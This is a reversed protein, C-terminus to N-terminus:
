PKKKKSKKLIYEGLKYEGYLGALVPVAAGVLFSVPLVDGGEGGRQRYGSGIGRYAEGMVKDFLEPALDEAAMKFNIGGKALRYGEENPYKSYCEIAKKDATRIARKRAMGQPMKFIRDFELDHVKSCADINNYPPFNRVEPLDIRSGPGTFGHNKVHIEGRKLYRIPRKNGTNKSVFRQANSLYQFALDPNDGIMKIIGDKNKSIAKRVMNVAANGGKQKKVIKKKAPKKKKVVKKKPAPKKKYHGPM